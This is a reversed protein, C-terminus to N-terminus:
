LRKRHKKLIKNAARENIIVVKDHGDAKVIILGGVKIAKAVQGVGPVATLAFNGACSLTSLDLDGNDDVCGDLAVIDVIATIYDLCWEWIWSGGTAISRRQRSYYDYDNAYCQYSTSLPSFSIKRKSYQDSPCTKSDCRFQYDTRDYHKEEFYVDDDVIQKVLNRCDRGQRRCIRSAYYRMSDSNVEYLGYMSADVFASNLIALSGLLIQKTLM